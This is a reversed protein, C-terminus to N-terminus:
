KIIDTQEIIFRTGGEEIIDDKSKVVKGLSAFDVTISDWFDYGNKLKLVGNFVDSFEDIVKDSQALSMSIYLNKNDISIENIKDRLHLAGTIADHVDQKFAEEDYSDNEINEDNAPLEIPDYTDGHHLCMWTVKKQLLDVEFAVYNGDVYVDSNSIVRASEKDTAVKYYASGTGTKRYDSFLGHASALQTINDFQGNIIFDDVFSQLQEMENTEPVDEVSESEQTTNETGEQTSENEEISTELETEEKTSIETDQKSTEMISSESVKTQEPSTSSDSSSGIGALAIILYILWAVVVIIIKPVISIKKKKFLLITLPLPFIFIWGLVWLWTRRKKPSPIEQRSAKNLSETQARQRGKEFQYGAEEANDYQVHQIEDDILFSAGCFKCEVNNNTPDVQLKAGCHPCVMDVLKM